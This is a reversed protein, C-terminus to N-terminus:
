EGLYAEGNKWRREIDELEAIRKLLPELLDRSFREKFEQYLREKELPSM